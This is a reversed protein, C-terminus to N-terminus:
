RKKVSKKKQIPMSSPLTMSKPNMSSQKVKGPTNLFGMKLPTAAPRPTAKPKMPVKVTQKPQTAFAFRPLTSAMTNSQTSKGKRVTQTPKPSAKTIYSGTLANFKTNSLPQRKQPNIMLGSPAPMRLAMKINTQKTPIKIGVKPAKMEGFGTFSPMISKPLTNGVSKEGPKKEWGLRIAASTDKAARELDFAYNFLEQHKRM